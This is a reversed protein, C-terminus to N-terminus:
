KINEHFPLDRQVKKPVFLDEKINEPVSTEREAAEEQKGGRIKM